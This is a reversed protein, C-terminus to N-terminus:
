WCAMLLSKAARRVLRGALQPSGGARLRWIEPSHRSVPGMSSPAAAFSSTTCPQVGEVAPPRLHTVICEILERRYASRALSFQALGDRRGGIGTCFSSISRGACPQYFPFPFRHIRDDAAAFIGVFHVLIPRTRRFAHLHPSARNGDVRLVPHVAEIAVGLM